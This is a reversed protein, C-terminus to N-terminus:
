FYYVVPCGFRCARRQNFITPAIGKRNGRKNINNKAIQRLQVDICLDWM